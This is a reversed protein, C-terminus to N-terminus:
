AKEMFGCSAGENLLDLTTAKPAPAVCIIGALFTNFRFQLASIEASLTDVVKSLDNADDTPTAVVFMWRTMADRDRVADLRGDCRTQTSKGVKDTEISEFTVSFKVFGLEWVCTMIVSTWNDVAHADFM